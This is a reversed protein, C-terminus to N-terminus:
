RRHYRLRHDRQDRVFDYIEGREVYASSHDGGGFGAYGAGPWPKTLGQPLNQPDARLDLTGTTNGWIKWTAKSDRLKGPVLSETRRGPHNATARRQPLQPDAIEGYGSRSRRIAAM